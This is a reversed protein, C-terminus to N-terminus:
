ERKLADVPRLKAAKYAPYVGIVAGAIMSVVLSVLIFNTNIIFDINLVACAIIIAIIGLAIGVTSGILTIFVSEIVIELMIDKNTAGLSKKIGIERTRESISVLMITMISLASVLLSVGAIATLTVSIISMIGNLQSKQKLLNNVNVASTSKLKSNLKSKIKSSVKDSENASNLKVAIEDVTTRGYINQMTTYPIYAFRPVIESILSQLTNMGSKVVGVVEFEEYAGNILFRLKKGVINSRGFCAKALDEDVICIRNQYSIDGSSFLRGYLVEFSLIKDASGGIGWLVSQNTGSASKISAIEAMLPVAESVGSIEKITSVASDTLSKGSQKNVSVMVSEIGMQSLMNNIGVTGIKSVSSIIVLTFIGICVGLITLYSRVKSRFISKIGTKILDM